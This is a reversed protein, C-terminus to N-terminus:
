AEEGNRAHALNERLSEIISAIQSRSEKQEDEDLGLFQDLMSVVKAQDGSEGVLGFLMAARKYAKIEDDKVVERQIGRTLFQFYNWFSKALWHQNTHLFKRADCEHVEQQPHVNMDIFARHVFHLQLSVRKGLGFSSAPWELQASALRAIEKTDPNRSDSGVIRDLLRNIDHQGEKSWTPRPKNGESNQFSAKLTHPKMDKVLRRLERAVHLREEPRTGVEIYTVLDIDDCIAHEVGLLVASGALIPYPEIKSLLAAIKPYQGLRESPQRAFPSVCYPLIAPVGEKLGFGYNSLEEPQEPPVSFYGSTVLAYLSELEAVAAPEGVGQDSLELIRIVRRDIM